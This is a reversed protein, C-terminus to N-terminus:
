VDAPSISFPRGCRGKEWKSDSSFGGQGVQLRWARLQLIVIKQGNSLPQRLEIVVDYAVRCPIVLRSFGSTKKLFFTGLHEDIVFTRLHLGEDLIDDARNELHEVVSKPNSLVDLRLVVHAGDFAEAESRHLEKAIPSGDICKRESFEPSNLVHAAVPDDVLELGGDADVGIQLLGALNGLPDPRLQM